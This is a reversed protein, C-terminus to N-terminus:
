TRVVKGKRGNEKRRILLIYTETRKMERLRLNHGALQQVFACFGFFRAGNDTFCGYKEVNELLKKLFM